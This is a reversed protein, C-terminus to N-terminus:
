LFRELLSVIVSMGVRHTVIGLVVTVLFLAIHLFPLRRGDDILAVMRM